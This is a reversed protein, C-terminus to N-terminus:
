LDQYTLCCNIYRGHSNYILLVNLGIIKELEKQADILSSPAFMFPIYFEVEDQVKIKEKVHTSYKDFFDLVAQVVLETNNDTKKDEFAKKIYAFRNTNKPTINRIIFTCTTPGAVRPWTHCDQSALPVWLVLDYPKRKQVEPHNYQFKDSVTPKVGTQEYFKDNNLCIAFNFNTKYYAYYALDKDLLDFLFQKTTDDTTTDMM